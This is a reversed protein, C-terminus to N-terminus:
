SFFCKAQLWISLPESLKREIVMERKKVIKKRRKLEEENRGDPEHGPIRATGM